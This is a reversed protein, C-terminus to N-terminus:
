AIEISVPCHDSGMVESLIKATKVKKALMSSVFIYDIRWGVNRARANAFHTWWTYHGNGKTFMRFTDVFGADIINKIGEREEKTYGKREENEKPRALDDPMHAVNLDGCFIVPKKKELSKCYALFAPDWQKERLPIRSLDDKANPTYVSVVYFDKFETTVIRGETQPDGYDDAKLGFKKAIEEPFGNIVSIPKLKSFIATGSYGKKVASNWYEDYEPLDIPSEHKEAKTEQLCLIDPRYKKIFSVFLGKKHVARIGNVNWSMIRM